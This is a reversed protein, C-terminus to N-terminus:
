RGERARADATSALADAVSPVPVPPTVTVRVHGDRIRVAVRDRAWGPLADRVADEPDGGQLIAMAGAQASHDALERGVNVALVGGAALVVAAFVPLLALTEVTAQGRETRRLSRSAAAGSM